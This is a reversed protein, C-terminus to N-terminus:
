CHFGGAQKEQLYSPIVVFTSEGRKQERDQEERKLLSIWWGTERAFLRLSVLHKTHFKHPNSFQQAHEKLLSPMLSPALPNTDNEILSSRM